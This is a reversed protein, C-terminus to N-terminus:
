MDQDLVSCNGVSQAVYEILGHVSKIAKLPVGGVWGSEREREREREMERERERVRERESPSTPLAPRRCTLPTARCISPILPKRKPFGRRM